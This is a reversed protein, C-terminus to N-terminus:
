CICTKKLLHCVMEYASSLENEMTQKEEKMNEESILKDQTEQLNDELQKLTLKQSDFLRNVQILENDKKEM